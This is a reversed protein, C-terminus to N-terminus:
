RPPPPYRRPGPPPPGLAGGSRPPLPRAAPGPRAPLPAGAGAAAALAVAVAGGGGALLLAQGAAARAGRDDGVGTCRAVVLQGVNVVNTTFATLLCFVTWSLGLAATAASNSALLAREAFKGADQAAFTLAHVLMQLSLVRVSLAGAPKSMVEVETAGARAAEPASGPPLCVVPGPRWRTPTQARPSTLVPSGPPRKRIRRAPPCGPRRAGAVRRDGPPRRDQRVRYSLPCWPPTR